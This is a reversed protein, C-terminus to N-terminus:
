GLELVKSAVNVVLVVKGEIDKMMFKDGKPLDASLDWFSSPKASSM